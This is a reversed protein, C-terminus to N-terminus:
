IEARMFQRWLRRAIQGPDAEVGYRGFYEAVNEIDRTLLDFANRNTRPDVAQPFDIITVDGRWYLINFPSLDGHVQNRSLFLEINRMLRQFLPRAEDRRLSVHRLPPAAEEDDGVYSMLLANSGSRIPQPVDAGASHLDCLTEFEHGLWGGFQVERGWESKRAVARRDRKNTIVRGERYVSDNKFSRHERPRYIKAALLESPAAPGGACCYVTAEKGSKVVYLLEHIHGSEYFPELAADLTIRDLL